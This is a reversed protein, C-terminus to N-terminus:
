ECLKAVLHWLRGSRRRYRGSPNLNQYEKAYAGGFSPFATGKCSRTGDISHAAGSNCTYHSERCTRTGSASGLAKFEAQPNIPFVLPVSSLSHQSGQSPWFLPCQSLAGGQSLAFFLCQSLPGAPKRKIQGPTPYEVDYCSCTGAGAAGAGFVGAFALKDAGCQNRAGWWYGM